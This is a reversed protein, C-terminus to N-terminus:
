PVNVLEALVRRQYRDTSDGGYQSLAKKISKHNSTLEAIIMEAQLAQDVPNHPVSGWDRRSVQWAGSHRRKYGTNRATYPTNKEGKTAIAALLRPNKTRLVAAAMQEPTKNGARRFYEAMRVERLSVPNGHSKLMVPAPHHSCKQLTAVLFMGAIFGAITMILCDYNPKKKPEQLIRKLEHEYM